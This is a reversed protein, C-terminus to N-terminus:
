IIIVLELFLILCTNFTVKQEPPGSDKSRKNHLEQNAHSEYKEKDIHNLEGFKESNSVFEKSRGFFNKSYVKKHQSVSSHRKLASLVDDTTSKVQSGYVFSDWQKLWM